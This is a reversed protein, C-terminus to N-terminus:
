IDVNVNMNLFLCWALGFWLAWLYFAIRDGNGDGDGDDWM